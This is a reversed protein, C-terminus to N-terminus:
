LILGVAVASVGCDLEIAGFLGAERRVQFLGYLELSWIELQGVRLVVTGFSTEAV